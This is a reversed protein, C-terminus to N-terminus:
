PHHNATKRGEYAALMEEAGPHRVFILVLRNLAIDCALCLPHWARRGTACPKLNWQESAPAGCHACARRSIGAVTYPKRRM